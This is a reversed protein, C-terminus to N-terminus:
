NLLHMSLVVVLQATCLLFTELPVPSPPCVYQTNLSMEETQLFTQQRAQHVMQMYTCESAHQMNEVRSIFCLRYFIIFHGTHMLSTDCAQLQVEGQTSAHISGEAQTQNTSM